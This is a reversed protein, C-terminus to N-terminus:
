GVIPLVIHSAHNSDNLIHQRATQLEDSISFADSTNPNRNWRPFSSSTIQVGIRHGARFLNSTAWLDIDYAYPRGSEILSPAGGVAFSRYRARIIGDTLNIARGDPFVDTLRVVFDTDPATSTAWLHATVPGTVEVDAALPETTYVLVDTRDQIPRQDMPGAPFEPAMLTAGGRSPVPDAPDYLFTDPPEDAPPLLSLGGGVRLYWRTDVARELPWAPEDRWTNAGMVFLRVPPEALVGTDIDHLWHDFWRLQLSRVDTELNLFGAEAGAGFNREGFPNEWRMHTWPGIVLRAPTGQKRLAAYSALTDGLHLDYWGGILLAPSRIRNWRDRLSISALPERTRDMPAAVVGAFARDAGLRHLPGFERLPLSWYGTTGLADSEAAWAAIARSRADRDDGHRRMLEGLHLRLQFWAGIGLELAGGRFMMGNLPDCPAVMPAIARLAPPQRLAAAWQTWGFYSGGYMGVRGTSFALKAAWAISDAGDDAEHQYPVWEGGSAGTGRVDQVIVVYGRRATQVPDLLDEGWAGDKGYPLRTLLVPWRGDGDPRYVNARLVAGDRMTAPADFAVTVASSLSSDM